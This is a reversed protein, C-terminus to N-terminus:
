LRKSVLFVWPWSFYQIKVTAKVESVIVLSHGSAAVCSVGTRLLEIVPVGWNLQKYDRFSILLSACESDILVPLNLKGIQAEMSPPSGTLIDM